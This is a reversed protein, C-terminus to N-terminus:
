SYFIITRPPNDSNTKKIYTAKLLKELVLHGVFLSWHYDKSQLLNMMTHFDDNSSSVWYEVLEDKTMM